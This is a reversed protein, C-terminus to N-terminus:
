IHILSLEQGKVRHVTALTVGAEDTGQALHARLWGEFTAIDDHLDALQLLAELDDINSGGQAGKSSDLLGMAQGLGIDDRVLTLTERVGGKAAVALGELDSAVVQLNQRERDKQLTDALQGLSRVSWSGRKALRDPRDRICM